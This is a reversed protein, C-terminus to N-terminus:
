PEGLPDGVLGDKAFKFLEDSAWAMGYPMVEHEPSSVYTSLSHIVDRTVVERAVEAASTGVPCVPRPTIGFPQPLQHEDFGMATAYWAGHLQTINLGFLPNTWAWIWPIGPPWQYVRPNLWERLVAIEHAVAFFEFHERADPVIPLVYRDRKRFLGM